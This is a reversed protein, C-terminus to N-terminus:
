KHGKRKHGNLTAKASALKPGLVIFGGFQPVTRTLDAADLILRHNALRKGCNNHVEKAVKPEMTGAILRDLTTDLVANIEHVNKNEYTKSM